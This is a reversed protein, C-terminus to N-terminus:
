LQVNLDGGVVSFLGNQQFGSGNGTEDAVQYLGSRLQQVWNGQQADWRGVEQHRGDRMIVKGGYGAPFRVTVTRPPDAPAAGPIRWLVLPPALDGVIQVHQPYKAQQTKRDVSLAVMTALTDMTVDGNVDKPQRLWQILEATFVGRAQDAEASPMLTPEYASEDRRAAYGLIIRSGSHAPHDCSTFVVPPTPALPDVRRCCDAFFIVERFIGCGEYWTSYLSPEFVEGFTAVDANAMILGGKGALTAVGHGSVYIYLRTSDWLEHHDGLQAEVSENVERLSRTIQTLQPTADLAVPFAQGQEAVILRANEQPVGGGSPDVLWAHFAVADARAHSLNSMGRGPYADIGVVIAYHLPNM